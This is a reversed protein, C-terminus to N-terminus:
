RWGLLAKSVNRLLGSKHVRPRQFLCGSCVTVVLACGKALQSSRANSDGGRNISILVVFGFVHARLLVVVTTLSLAPGIVWAAQQFVFRDVNTNGGDLDSSPRYGAAILSLRLEVLDSRWLSTMMNETSELLNRREVGNVRHEDYRGCSTSWRVGDTGKFFSGHFGRPSLDFAKCFRTAAVLSEGDM